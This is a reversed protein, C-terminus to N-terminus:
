DHGEKVTNSSSELTIGSVINRELVLSSNCQCINFWISHTTTFSYKNRVSKSLIPVETTYSPFAGKRHEGEGQVRGCAEKSIIPLIIEQLVFKEFTLLSSFILVITNGCPLLALTSSFLESHSSYTPM